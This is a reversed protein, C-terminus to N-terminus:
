KNNSKPIKYCPADDDGSAVLKGKVDTGEYINVNFLLSKEGNPIKAIVWLIGEKDTESIVKTQSNHDPIVHALYTTNQKLGLVLIRVDANNGNEEDSGEYIACKVDMDVGFVLYCPLYM